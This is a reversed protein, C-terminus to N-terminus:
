GKKKKRGHQGCVGTSQSGLERKEDVNELADTGHQIFDNVLQHLRFPIEKHDVMIVSPNGQGNM